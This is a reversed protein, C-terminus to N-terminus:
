LWPRFLWIPQREPRCRVVAPTAALDIGNAWRCGACLDFDVDRGRVPCNVRGHDIVYQDPIRPFM